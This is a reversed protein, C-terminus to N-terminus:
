EMGLVRRHDGTGVLVLILENEHKRYVLLWDSAIHCERLGEYAGSLAHDNNRDPLTTGNALMDIIAELKRRDLGSKLIRKFDKRYQKTSIVVYRKM